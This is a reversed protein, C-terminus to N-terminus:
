SLLGLRQARQVAEARNRAGLKRYLSTLHEKVTHPSLHIRAAIERNTAGSSALELVRRERESLGAGVTEARPPFVTGGTGVSYVAGLIQATPWDKPVFGSAGIAQATTTGIRGSGSMLLVRTTPCVALVAECVDAGSTAGLMLDVLAVQPEYRRALDARGALRLAGARGAPRGDEAAVESYAMAPPVHALRAAEVLVRAVCAEDLTRCRGPALPFVHGPSVLDSPRTSGDALASVTHAIRQQRSAFSGALDISLHGDGPVRLGLQALREAPLAVRLVGRGHSRDLGFFDPAVRAADAALYSRGGAEDVLLFPRGAALELLARDLRATRGHPHAPVSGRLHRSM